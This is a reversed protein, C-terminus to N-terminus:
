TSLLMKSFNGILKNTKVSFLDVFNSKVSDIFDM